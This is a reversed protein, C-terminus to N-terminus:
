KIVDRNRRHIKDKAWHFDISTVNVGEHPCKRWLYEVYSFMDKLDHELRHAELIFKLIPYDIKLGDGVLGLLLDENFLGKKLLIGTQNLFSIRALAKESIQREETWESAKHYKSNYEIILDLVEQQNPNIERLIKDLGKLKKPLKHITRRYDRMGASNHIELLKWYMDITRKKKKEWLLMASSVFGSFFGVVISILSIATRTILWELAM